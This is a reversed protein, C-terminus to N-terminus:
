VHTLPPQLLPLHSKLCRASCLCDSATQLREQDKEERSQGVGCCVWPKGRHPSMRSGGPLPQPQAPPLPQQQQQWTILTLPCLPTLYASINWLPTMARAARLQHEWSGQAEGRSSTGATAGQSLCGSHGYHVTCRTEVQLTRGAVVGDWVEEIWRPPLKLSKCSTLAWSWCSVSAGM